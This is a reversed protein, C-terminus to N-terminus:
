QVPFSFCHLDVWHLLASNRSIPFYQHIVLLKLCM